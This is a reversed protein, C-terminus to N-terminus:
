HMKRLVAYDIKSFHRPDRPLKGVVIKGSPLGLSNLDDELPSFCKIHPYALQQFSKCRNVELFYVLESGIKLLTGAIVGPIQKLQQEVIFPYLVTDNWEIIQECRGFLYLKNENDLIGADGTRHYMKGDLWIKSEKIQSERLPGFYDSVVHLGSVAIEGLQGSELPKQDVLSLIKVDASPEISGVCLGKNLKHSAILDQGSISSIPEAETSGFVIKILANPCATRWNKASQPFVPAGGSYIERLGSLQNTKNQTLAEISLKEIFYPSAIVRNIRYKQISKLVSSVKLSHPKKSSWKVIVSSIGLGLNIMLVIPLVPMDVTDDRTQLTDQLALFQQHLIEHTRVVAKPTGTSGTTFTILATHNNPGITSLDQFPKSPANQIEKTSMRIPIQRIEKIFWGLRAAVPIGIFGKCDAIQCSLKLRDLKAWEDIFVATCGMQFLALVSVYLEISMPVFVLVRDGSKLGRDIFYAHTSQIHKNLDGFTIVSKKDAIAMRQSNLKAAVHFHEMINGKSLTSAIQITYSM